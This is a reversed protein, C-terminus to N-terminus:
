SSYKKNKIISFRKWAYTNTKLNSKAEEIKKVIL